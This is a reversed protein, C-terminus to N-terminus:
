RNRGYALQMLQQIEPLQDTDTLTYEVDGNGHHGISSVDRMADGNWPQAHKPDLVLFVVLKSGFAKFSFIARKGVFYNVSMKAPKRFVDAGLGRGYEDLQELLQVVNAPKGALHQEVSYTPKIADTSTTSAQAKPTSEVDPDPGSGGVAGGATPAPKGGLVRALSARLQAPPPVPKEVAAMVQDLFAQQPDSAIKALADRVRIDAFIAEGWRDLEGDGVAERSIRRLSKLVDAAKGNQADALDVSFLLKDGMAVPENTKYIRYSLGNTLVCWLVGENNAYNVTQAIFSKNELPKGVAKAEVFLHPKGDVKLAYDLFTNDYVCYERDVQAFDSLDWGLAALVPEILVAKTNAENPSGSAKLADAKQLVQEIATALATV